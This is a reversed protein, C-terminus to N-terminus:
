ENNEERIDKLNFKWEEKSDKEKFYEIPDIYKCSFPKERYTKLLEIAEDFTM